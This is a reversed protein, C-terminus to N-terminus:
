SKQPILAPEQTPKGEPPPASFAISPILVQGFPGLATISRMIERAAGYLMSAGTISMLKQIDQEPFENHIEFFGAIELFYTYPYNSGDSRQHRIKLVLQWDRKNEKNILTVTEVSFDSDNLRHPQTIVFENNPTLRLDAICYHKLQIPAQM